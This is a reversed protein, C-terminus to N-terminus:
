CTSKMKVECSEEENALFQNGLKMPFPNPRIRLFVIGSNSARDAAKQPFFLINRRWCHCWFELEGANSHARKYAALRIPQVTAGV